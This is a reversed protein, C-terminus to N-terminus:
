AAQALSTRRAVELKQEIEDMVVEPPVRVKRLELDIQILEINQESGHEMAMATEFMKVMNSTGHIGKACKGALEIEALIILLEKAEDNSPIHKNRKVAGRHRTRNWYHWNYQPHLLLAEEIATEDDTLLLINEGKTVNGRELYESLPYFNREHRETMADSRRVHIWTCPSEVAPAAEKVLEM